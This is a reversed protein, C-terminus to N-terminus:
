YVRPSTFFIKGLLRTEGGDEERDTGQHGERDDRSSILSDTRTKTRLSLRLSPLLFRLLPLSTRLPSTVRDSIPSSGESLSSPAIRSTATGSRRVHSGSITISVIRVGPGGKLSARKEKSVAQAVTIVRLRQVAGANDGPRSSTRIARTSVLLSSDSFSLGLSDM